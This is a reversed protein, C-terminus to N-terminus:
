TCGEQFGSPPSEQPSRQLRESARESGFAQESESAQELESVRRLALGVVSGPMSSSSPSASAELSYICTALVRPDRARFCICALAEPMCCAAM